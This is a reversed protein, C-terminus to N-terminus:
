LMLLSDDVVSIDDDQQRGKGGRDAPRPETWEDDLIIGDRDPGEDGPGSLIARLEKDTLM